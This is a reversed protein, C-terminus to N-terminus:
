SERDVFTAVFSPFVLTKSRDIFEEEDAVIKTIYDETKLIGLLQELSDAETIGIGSCQILMPRFEDPLTEDLHL